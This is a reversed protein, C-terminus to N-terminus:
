IIRSSLEALAAREQAVGRLLLSTNVAPDKRRLARMTPPCLSRSTGRLTNKAVPDKSRFARM